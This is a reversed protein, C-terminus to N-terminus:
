RRVDSRWPPPVGADLVTRFLVAIVVVAFAFGADTGVGVQDWLGGSFLLSAAAVTLFAVAWRGTGPGGRLSGPVPLMPLIATLVPGALLAGGVVLGAEVPGTILAGALLMVVLSGVTQRVLEGAATTTPAPGGGGFLHAGDDALPRPWLAGIAAGVAAGLYLVPGYYWTPDSALNSMLQLPSWTYVPTILFGIARTWVFVLFGALLGCAGAVVISAPAVEGRGALLLAATRARLPIEVVLIWLLIYSALRALLATFPIQWALNILEGSYYSAALDSGAFVVVFLVGLAPALLGIVAGVLMFSLSETYVVDFTPRLAFWLPDGNITASGFAHAVSALVPYAVAVAALTLFGRSTGFREADIRAAAGYLGAARGVIRAPLLALRVAFGALPSTSAASGGM